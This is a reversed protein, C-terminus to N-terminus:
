KIGLHNIISIYKDYYQSEAFERIKNEPLADLLHDLYTFIEVLDKKDIIANKQKLTKKTAKTNKKFNEESSDESDSLNDTQIELDVQNNDTVDAEPMDINKLSVNDMLNDMEEISLTVEEQTEETKNEMELENLNVDKLMNEMEKTSLTVEESEELNRTSENMKINDFDDQKKVTTDMPPGQYDKIEINDSLSEELNESTEEIANEVSIVEPSLNETNKNMLNEDLEKDDFEVNQLNDQDADASNESAYDIDEKM